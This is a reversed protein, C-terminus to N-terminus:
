IHFSQNLGFLEDIRKLLPELKVHFAEWSFRTFNNKMSLAPASKHAHKRQPFSITRGVCLKNDTTCRITHM